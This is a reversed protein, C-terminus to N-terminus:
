RKTSRGCTNQDDQSRPRSTSRPWARVSRPLLMVCMPMASQRGGLMVTLWPLLANVAPSMALGTLIMLPLMGFVVPLGMLLFVLILVILNVVGSM